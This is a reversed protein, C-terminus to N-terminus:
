SGFPDRLRWMFSRRTCLKHRPASSGRARLAVSVRNEHDQPSTRATHAPAARTPTTPEIAPRDQTNQKMFISCWSAEKTRLAREGTAWPLGAQPPSFGAFSKTLTPRLAGRTVLRASWRSRFFFRWIWWWLPKVWREQGRSNELDAHCFLM